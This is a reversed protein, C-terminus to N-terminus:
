GLISSVSPPGSCNTGGGGNPGGIIIIRAPGANRSRGLRAFLPIGFTITARYTPVRFLDLRPPPQYDKPSNHMRSLGLTKVRGETRARGPASEYYRISPIPAAEGAPGTSILRGAES